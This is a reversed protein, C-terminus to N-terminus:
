PAEQITILEGSHVTTYGTLSEAQRRFEGTQVYDLLPSLVKAQDGPLILDYREEWLPM